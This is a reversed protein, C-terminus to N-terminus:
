RAVTEPFPLLGMKCPWMVLHEIGDDTAASRCQATMEILADAATM